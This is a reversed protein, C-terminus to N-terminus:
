PAGPPSPRSPPWLRAAAVGSLILALAVLARPSLREDLFVAGWVVGFLPVLYNNFSAFGAGARAILRFLVLYGVATCVLGLGVIAWVSSASPALQWPRDLILSAPAISVGAGLLMGAGVLDADMPPLRRAIIANAAYCLAAAAMSLEAVLTGGLGTVATPGILVLVGALGLGVGASKAATFPEDPVFFHALTMTALPVQAILIAALGSDIRTESSSILFFPLTAGLASMAALARWHARLPRLSGGRLRVVVLLFAAGIWIRGAAVTLPPVTAVAVKVLLFSFGWMAGLAGLLAYDGRSPRM